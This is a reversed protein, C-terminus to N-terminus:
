ALSDAGADGAHTAKADDRDIAMAHCADAPVDKPGGEAGPVAVTAEAERLFDEHEEIRPCQPLLETVRAASM